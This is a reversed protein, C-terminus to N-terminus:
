SPQDGAQVARFDLLASGVVATFLVAVLIGSHYFDRDRLVLMVAGLVLLKGIWVSFVVAGMTLPSSNVTALMSGITAGCFVVAIGAGIVAGWVGPMGTLWWGVVSGVMLLATVLLASDRLAKRYVKGQQIDAQTAALAQGQAHDHDQDQAQM